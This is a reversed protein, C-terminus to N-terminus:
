EPGPLASKSGILISIRLQVDPTAAAPKDLRGIAEEIAAINEPYDRVTITHMENDFNLDTGQVGSGLTKIAVYIDRPARHHIEIMKTQFKQQAFAATTMLLMALVLAIRKM